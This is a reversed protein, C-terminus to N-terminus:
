SKGKVRRFRVEFTGGIWDDGLLSNIESVKQVDSDKGHGFMLNDLTVGLADAVKKVQKVDRPNSGALWGSLSQKPVGAKRALQAASLDNLELYHRLQKKLTMPLAIPKIRAGNFSVDRKNTM